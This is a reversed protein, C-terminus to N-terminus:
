EKECSRLIEKVRLVHEPPTDYTVIGCGLAFKEYDACDNYVTRINATLEAEDGKLVMAPTIHARLIMGRERCLEKYRQRDCVWEAMVLSAGTEVMDGIIASTNGGGILAVFGSGKSKLDSILDRERPYAFERYMDPPCLPPM